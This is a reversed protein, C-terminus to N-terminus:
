EATSASGALDPFSPLQVSSRTVVAAHHHLTLSRYCKPTTCRTSVCPWVIPISEGSPSPHGLRKTDREMTRLTAPLNWQQPNEEITAGLRIHKKREVDVFAFGQLMM